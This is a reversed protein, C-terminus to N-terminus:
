QNGGRNKRAEREEYANYTDLGMQGLGGWFRSADAGQAQLGSAEGLRANAQAQRRAMDNAFGAQKVQNNALGTQFKANSNFRNLEDQARAKDSMARWDDARMGRGLGGAAELAQLARARGQAAMNSGALATANAANQSSQLALGASLGSNRIGRAAMTQALSANASGAEASAARQVLGLAARDGESMGGSRYEEELRDLVDLGRGRLASDEVVGALESRPITEMLVADLQPLIEPGYQAAIDARIKQAEADKGARIAEGILAVGASIAAAILPVAM